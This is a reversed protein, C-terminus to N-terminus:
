PDYHEKIGWYFYYNDTPTLDGWDMTFGASTLAICTMPVRIPDTDPGTNVLFAWPTYNANARATGFSIAKSRVGPALRVQGAKGNKDVTAWSLVGTGDNVMAQGSGGQATPMTLTFTTPNAPSVLSVSGSGSGSLKLTTGAKAELGTGSILGAITVNAIVAEANNAWQQLDASQSAIAKVVLTPLTTNGAINQIGTGASPHGAAYGGLYVNGLYSVNFMSGNLNKNCISFTNGTGAYLAWTQFSNNLQGIINPSGLFIDDTSNYFDCLSGPSTTRLGLRQNVEDYASTGFIIKGKTAHATSSLTLTDGSATGGKAVQGGARGALLFYQTHDDGTTLGGLESHPANKVLSSWAGNVYAKIYNLTSDYLIVGNRAPAVANVQTTTLVPLGIGGVTGGVDLTAGAGPTALNVALAKTVTNFFLLADNSPISTGDGILVRGATTLSFGLNTRSISADAVDSLNNAVTLFPGGGGGGM